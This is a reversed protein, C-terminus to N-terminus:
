EVAGVQRFGPAMVIDRLLFQVRYGSEALGQAHWALLEGEGYAPTHATAYEYVTSALCPGLAEHDHVAQALGVADDYDVGDLEGSADIPAGGDVDRWGGLGDFNEMALGIPDTLTHCSACAPDALHRAVRDRMTPADATSAPISTDVNAPPPPLDQCLLVGRVFLGRRTVSSSTPHAHLALVSAQGLLGVRGSDDPYETQGFGERAPAAVNYIAALKRNLFTTRTTLADRWDGDNQWVIWDLTSLTEERASPGVTEDMHLFITTDKSVDDLEDLAFMDSFFARTGQRARPDALMRDVQTALGGDTTLEGASAARLLEDDPTTNWLFFALRSALDDNSFRRTGSGDLVDEGLEARYLFNPSQLSAAIVYTVGDWHSGLTGAAQGALWYMRSLETDTPARRWATTLYAPLTASLCAYDIRGVNPCAFWRDRLDADAVVKAAIEYASDEYQGVGFPSVTVVASGLAQLGDVREDPELSATVRVEEGFIDHIANTYQAATLRRLGPPEPEIAPMDGRPALTDAAPAPAAPDCALLPLLWM